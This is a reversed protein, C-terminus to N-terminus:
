VCSSAPSSTNLVENAGGSQKNHASIVETRERQLSESSGKLLLGHSPGSVEGAPGLERGGKSGKGPFHFLKSTLNQHYMHVNKLFLDNKIKRCCVPFFVKLCSKGSGQEEEEEEEWVQLGAGERKGGM